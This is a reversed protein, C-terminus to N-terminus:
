FLVIDASLHPSTFILHRISHSVTLANLKDVARSTIVNCAKLNQKFREYRDGHKQINNAKDKQCAM